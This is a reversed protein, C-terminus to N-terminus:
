QIAEMLDLTIDVRAGERAKFGKDTNEHNVLLELRRQASAIPNPQAKAGELAWVVLEEAYDGQEPTWPGYKGQWTRYAFRIRRSLADFSRKKGGTIARILETASVPLVFAEDGAASLRTSIEDLVKKEDDLINRAGGTTLALELYEVLREGTWTSYDIETM